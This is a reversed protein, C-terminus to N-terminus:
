ARPVVPDTARMAMDHIVSGLAQAYHTRWESGWSGGHSQLRFDWDDTSVQDLRLNMLSTTGRNWERPASRACRVEQFGLLLGHAAASVINIEIADCKEFPRPRRWLRQRRATSIMDALGLLALTRTDGVELPLLKRSSLYGVMQEQAPKDRCTVVLYLNLRRLTPFLRFFSAAIATLFAVDVSCGLVDRCAYRLLQMMRKDFRIFRQFGCRYGYGVLGDHFIDDNADLAEPLTQLSRQLRHELMACANPPESLDVPEGSEEAYLRLLDAFLPLGTPGDCYGHDLIAYLYWKVEGSPYEAAVSVADAEPRKGRVNFIPIVCVHFMQSGPHKRNLLSSGAWFARADDSAEWRADASIEAVTPRLLVVETEGSPPMITSRPWTQFISSSALRGLLSRTWAQGNACWLQWLAAGIYTPDFMPQEQANRARLAPHRVVLRNVARQLALVDFHGHPRSVMWDVICMRPGLGCLWLRYCTKAKPPEDEAGTERSMVDLLESVSACRLVDAVGLSKGFENRLAETLTIAQMSDISQLGGVGCVREVTSSLARTEGGHSGCPVSQVPLAVPNDIADFFRRMSGALKWHLNVMLGVSNWPRGGRVGEVYVLNWANGQDVVAAKPDWVLSREGMWKPPRLRAMLDWSRPLESTRSQSEVLWGYDDSLM